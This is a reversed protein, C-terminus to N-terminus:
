PSPKSSLASKKTEIPKTGSVPPKRPKLYITVPTGRPPVKEPNSAYDRNADSASSRFPLDLISGPFNAVTILDGDDAAYIMQKTRPDEFLESGAFVWDHALAKGTGFDKVWDRADAKQTKGAQEWEVEIAIADGTPPEFAPQFKVPHGPTAGSLLLGAHIMRAPADTALVSEHEKGKSVLHELIGDQLAVRARLVVRKSKADFWIDKGLAKWDPDPKFSDAKAPPDDAPGGPAALLVLATLWPTIATM